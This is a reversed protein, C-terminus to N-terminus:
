RLQGCFMSLRKIKPSKKIALKTLHSEVDNILRYIADTVIKNKISSPIKAKEERFVRRKTDMLLNYLKVLDFKEGSFSSIKDRVSQRSDEDYEACNSTISEKVDSQFCEALIRCQLPIGVFSQVEDKLTVSVREVLSKAFQQLSENNNGSLNLEKEWYSTLYDIQDKQTFNELSYALQSLQFQLEGSMHTRTTVYLRISKNKSIAKMWEIAGRQCQENIEDFGDFMIVIRDGTKLRKRLLSRSFPSIHDVVHLRNMFLDVVDLDTIQDLKLVDEYDVLNVRIVWHDPKAQKIEEYYHCLLTSKGIGAVGSIIVISKENGKEKLNMLHIDEVTKSAQNTKNDNMIKKWIEKRKKKEVLWEIHGDSNIRCEGSLEFQNEFPFRLARKVYLTEEFTSTNFSPIKVKKEEFLLEMMSNFDMSEEPEDGVLDGVTVNGGQFWVMRTLIAQQCDESLDVYKIEDKIGHLSGNRSIIITVNNDDLQDDAIFNTYSSVSAEDDCVIVFFHHFSKQLKLINKWRKREEENQLHSSSTVLYNGEQKLERMLIQVASIVKVATHKPSLTAIRKFKGRGDSEPLKQKLQGTMRKIAGDNFKIEKELQSQYELSMKTVDALLINKASESKLWFNQEKNSFEAPV